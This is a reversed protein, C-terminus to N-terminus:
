EEMEKVTMKFPYGQLKALKMAKLVKSSAIDRPYIGAIGQQKQHVDMMIATAEEMNKSFINMLIDIVFEMTTFDDNHMIAAYKKPKDVKIISKVDQKYSVSM